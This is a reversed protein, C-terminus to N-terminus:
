LKSQFSCSPFPFLNRCDLLLSFTFVCEREKKLVRKTHLRLLYGDTCFPFLTLSIPDRPAYILGPVEHLHTALGLVHELCLNSPPTSSHTSGSVASSSGSMDTMSDTDASPLSPRALTHHHATAVLPSSRHRRLSTRRPPLGETYICLRRPQHSGTM